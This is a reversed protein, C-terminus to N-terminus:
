AVEMAALYDELCTQQQFIEAAVTKGVYRYHWPEYIIGTSEMFGLPYRLIWGYEWSHEMLWKQAPTDAQADDLIQYSADVIDVTLGLQHESTGPIAVEKAAEVKAEELPLGTAEMVRQVKNNYLREQTSYSRYSSCIIPELGQARCDDMMEQLDPYCRTDVSHGGSLETREMDLDGTLPKWKNAVVLQWDETSEPLPEPLDPEPLPEPQSEPQPQPEPQPQVVEPVPPIIEPVSKPRLSWWIGGGITIICLLTCVPLLCGKHSSKKSHSM